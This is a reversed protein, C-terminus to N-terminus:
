GRVMGEAVVRAGEPIPAPRRTAAEMVVCVGGSTAALVGGEGYLAQEVSLSTRGVKSLWTATRVTGPYFLEAKFEITLRVIVFYHGPPMAPVLRTAFLNVRGSECLVSYTSNNVHGNADMDGYRLVDHTWVVRGDAELEERTM